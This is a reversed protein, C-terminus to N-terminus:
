IEQKLSATANSKSKFLQKYGKRRSIRSLKKPSEKQEEIQPANNMYGRRLCTETDPFDVDWYHPQTPPPSYKARHRSCSKMRDAKQSDTLDMASFYAECDKCEFGRLKRRDAQKRVVEVYKYQPELEASPLDDFGKLFSDAPQKMVDKNSIEDSTDPEQIDQNTGDAEPGDDGAFMDDHSLNEDEETNVDFRQPPIEKPLDNTGINEQICPVENIICVMGSTMVVSAPKQDTSSTSKPNKLYNSPPQPTNEEFNSLDIAPDITGNLFSGDGANQNNEIINNDEQCQNRKDAPIFPKKFDSTSHDKLEQLSEKIAKKLYVDNESSYIIGGKSGKILSTAHSKGGKMMTLTKQVLKHGTPSDSNSKTPKVVEQQNSSWKAISHDVIHEQKNRKCELSKSSMSRVNEENSKDVDALKRKKTNASAARQSDCKSERLLFPSTDSLLSENGIQAGAMPTKPALFILNKSVNQRCKETDENTVAPSVDKQFTPSPIQTNVLDVPYQSESKPLSTRRHAHQRKVHNELRSNRNMTQKLNKVKPITPTSYFQPAKLLTDQTHTHIVTLDDDEVQLFKDTNIKPLVDHVEPVIQTSCFQPSKLSTGQTNLMTMDDDEFACTDPVIVTSKEIEIESIWNKTRENILKVDPTKVDSSSLIDDDYTVDLFMDPEFTEPVSIIQQNIAFDSVVLKPKEEGVSKQKEQSCLNKLVLTSSRETLNENRLNSMLPSGSMMLNASPETKIGIKRSLRNKNKKVQRSPNSTGNTSSLVFSPPSSTVVSIDLHSKPQEKIIVKCRKCVRDKAPEKMKTKMAEMKKLLLRCKSHYKKALCANENAFTRIKQYKKTLQEVEEKLKNVTQLHTEQLKFLYTTFLEQDVM